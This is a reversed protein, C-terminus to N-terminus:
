TGVQRYMRNVTFRDYHPFEGAEEPLRRCGARKWSMDDADYYWEEEERINIENWDILRGSAPDFIEYDCGTRQGFEIAESIARFERKEKREGAGHHITLKIM